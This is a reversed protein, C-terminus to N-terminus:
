FKQYQMTVMVLLGLGTAWCEPHERVTLLARAGEKYVMDWPKILYRAHIVDEAIIKVTTRANGPSLLSILLM